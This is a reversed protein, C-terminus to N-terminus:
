AAAPKQWRILLKRRTSDVLIVPRFDLGAELAASQVCPLGLRNPVPRARRSPAIRMLRVERRSSRAAAHNGEFRSSDEDVVGQRGPHGCSEASGPMFGDVNEVVAQM